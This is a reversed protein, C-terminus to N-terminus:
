TTVSYDFKEMTRWRNLFDHTSMVKHPHCEPYTCRMKGNRQMNM